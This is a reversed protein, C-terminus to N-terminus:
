GLEILFQPLVEGGLNVDEFTEVMGMDDGEDVAMLGSGVDVEDHFIAGEAVQGEEDLASIGQAVMAVGPVHDGLVGVGFPAGEVLDDDAVKEFLQGTGELEQPISMEDM